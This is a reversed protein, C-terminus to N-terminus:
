GCLDILFRLAMAGVQTAEREIRTMDKPNRKIEEWLEDLEELIVSYGEHCSNFPPFKKCARQLEAYILNAKEEVTKVLERCLATESLQQM